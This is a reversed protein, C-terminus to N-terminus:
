FICINILLLWSYTFIGIIASKFLVAKVTFKFGYTIYFKRVNNYRSYTLKKNFLFYTKIMIFLRSLTTKRQKYINFYRLWKKSNIFILINLLLIIFYIVNSTYM